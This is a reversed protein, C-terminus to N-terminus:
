KTLKGKYFDLVKHVRNVLMKALQITKEIEEESPRQVAFQTHRGMNDVINLNGDRFEVSQCDDVKPIIIQGNDQYVSLRSSLKYDIELGDEYPEIVNYGIANYKGYNTMRYVSHINGVLCAVPTDLWSIVVGRKLADKKLGTYPSISDIRKVEFGADIRLGNNNIKKNMDTM